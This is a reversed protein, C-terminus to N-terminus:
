FTTEEGQLKDLAVAVPKACELYEKVYAIDRGTLFNKIRLRSKLVTFHSEVEILDKLSDHLSLELPDSCTAELM